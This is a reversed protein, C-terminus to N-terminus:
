RYYETNDALGTSWVRREVGAAVLHVGHILLSMASYLVGKHYPGDENRGQALRRLVEACRVGQELLQLLRRYLVVKGHLTHIHTHHAHKM